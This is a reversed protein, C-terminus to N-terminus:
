PQEGRYAPKANGARRSVKLARRDLEREIDPLTVGMQVARTLAFFLVDAAEYTADEKTEAAILEDAEERLKAGLLVPDDLL